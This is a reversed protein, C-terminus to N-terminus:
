KGDDDRVVEVVREEVPERREQPAIRRTGRKYDHAGGAEEGLEEDLEVFM